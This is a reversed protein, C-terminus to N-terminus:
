LEDRWRVGTIEDDRQTNTRATRRMRDERRFRLHHVPFSPSSIPFCERDKRSRSCPNAYFKLAGGYPVLLLCVLLSFCCHSWRHAASEAEANCRNRGRSAPRFTAALEVRFVIKSTWWHFVPSVAHVRSPFKSLRKGKGGGSLLSTGRGAARVSIRDSYDRSKLVLPLFSIRLFLSHIFRRVHTHSYNKIVFLVGKYIDYEKIFISVRSSSKQLAM